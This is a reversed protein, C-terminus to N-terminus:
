DEPNPGVGHIASAQEGSIPHDKPEVLGPFMRGPEYDVAKAMVYWAAKALKCALAKTAVTTGKKAAKRDYWRRCALDFRRAGHAAEVFAWALYKNGCKENNKGKKKGNSMRNSDVTRCYSAFHGPDAFREINGVEMSITLGLIIGVGPLTKLREYYPQQVAVALVTKEIERISQELSDIHEKQIRAVLQDAPHTYLDGAEQPKMAKLRRLDLSQGTTRQHHSKASLILATRQRMLSTRRRLLDRVPRLDPDYIHGTPLIKLRQLEALFYADNKDDAHKIGDYQDIKAPNALLVPFGAARLGDVLWYWNFTSEVAISELESKYPELFEIIEPLDCALRRHQLRTGEADVIGVMVNNGHLDMGAMVRRM